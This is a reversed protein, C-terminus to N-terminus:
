RYRVPWTESNAQDYVYGVGPFDTPSLIRISDDDMAALLVKLANCLELTPVRSSLNLTAAVSKAFRYLPIPARAGQLMANGCALVSRLLLRVDSECMGSLRSLRAINLQRQNEPIMYLLPGVVGARKRM